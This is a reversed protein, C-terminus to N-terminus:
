VAALTYRLSYDVAPTAECAWASRAMIPHEAARLPPPLAGLCGIPASPQCGQGVPRRVQSARAPGFLVYGAISVSGRCCDPLTRPSGGSTLQVLRPPAQGSRVGSDTRPKVADPTAVSRLVDTGGVTAGGEAGGSPLLASGEAAM